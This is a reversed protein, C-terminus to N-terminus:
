PGTQAPAKTAWAPQQLTQEAGPPAKQTSVKPATSPRFRPDRSVPPRSPATRYSPPRNAPSPAPVAAPPRQRSAVGYRSPAVAPPPGYFGPQRYPGYYPRYPGHRGRYYRNGGYYRNDGYYRHDGRWYNDGRGRGRGRGWGEANARVTIEFDFDGVMDGFMDGWIDDMFDFRNDGRHYGHWRDRHDNDDWPMDWAIASSSMLVLSAAFAAKIFKM